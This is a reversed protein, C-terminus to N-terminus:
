GPVPTRIRARTGRSGSRLELAGGLAEAIELAVPLGVGSGGSGARTTFGPELVRALAHEPIGCGHDEVEIQVWAGDHSARLAVAEGAASAHLANDLLNGIARGLTVDFLVGELAPPIQLRVRGVGHIREVRRLADGVIRDFRQRPATDHPAGAADRVFREIAHTLGEALEGVAAADRALREPDSVQDPLRRVLLRIWGLDKGVDHALGLALRGAAAHREAAVREATLRANHLAIGARAALAQAFELELGNLPARRPPADLLLIGYRAGGCEIAVIAEVGRELLVDADDDPSPSAALHLLSRAGLLREASRAECASLAASVGFAQTCPLAGGREHLLVCARRSPVGRALADLVLQPIQDRRKQIALANELEERVRRLRQLQPAILAELAGLTRSRLLEVSAVCAAALLFLAAGSASGGARLLATLVSAALAFYLARAIGHRADSQLDFLNYRGIALAIPLPMTAAASWLYSGAAPAIEAAGRALAAAPLLPALVSGYLVLRGRARELPARSERLAFWCSIVLVLWAATTLVALLSVFAPWLLTDRTLATWGVPALFAAVAYPATRLAPVDRLLRRERPFVLSLHGAAAPAVLLALLAAGTMAPSDQGSVVALLMVSVSAYFVALPAAAPSATKWVLSLPIGLLLAVAVSVAALRALRAARESRRVPVDVWRSRAGERLELSLSEAGALLPQLEAPRELAQASGDGQRVRAVALGAGIPCADNGPAPMVRLNPLLWCPLEPRPGDHAARALAHGLLALAPLLVLATLCARARRASV